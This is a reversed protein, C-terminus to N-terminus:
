LDYCFSHSYFFFRIYVALVGDTKRHSIGLLEAHTALIESQTPLVKYGGGGEGTSVRM